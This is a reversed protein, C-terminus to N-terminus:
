KLLLKDEKYIIGCTDFRCLLGEGAFTKHHKGKLSGDLIGEIGRILESIVTKPIPSRCHAPLLMDFSGSVASLSKLSSLYVELPASEDLYMWIDGELISDGTFLMRDKSDLLAACGPSHGPLSIVEITRGGLDFIQGEHMHIIGGPKARIWEKKSFGEPVPGRIVNEMVRGRLAEDYSGKLIHEDEKAIYVSEFQYNGSVHDPHGHTNVVIVPKDTLESVVGPLDGIGWGTDILLAKESGRVLYISSEGNDDILIIDDTIREKRFWGNNTMIL